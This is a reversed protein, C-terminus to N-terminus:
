YTTYYLTEICVDSSGAGKRERAMRRRTKRTFHSRGAIFPVETHAAPAAIEIRRHTEQHIQPQLDCQSPQMITTMQYQWTRLYMCTQSTISCFANYHSCSHQMPSTKPLFSSCSVQRKETYLSQLQRHIAARTHLPRPQHRESTKEKGCHLPPKLCSQIRRHTHATKPHKPIEPQLNCQFAQMQNNDDQTAVHTSVHLNAVHHQLVCQLLQMLTAHPNNQPPLRLVFGPTKGHLTVAASSEHLATHFKVDCLLVNM